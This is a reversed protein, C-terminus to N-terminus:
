EDFKVGNRMMNTLQLVAEIESGTWESGLKQQIYIKRENKKKLGLFQDDRMFSQASKKHIMGVVDGESRMEM